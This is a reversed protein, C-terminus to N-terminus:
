AEPEWEPPGKYGYWAMDPASGYVANKVKIWIQNGWDHHWYFIPDNTMDEAFLAWHLLRRNWLREDRDDIAGTLLQREFYDTASVDSYEEFDSGMNLWKGSKRDRLVVDISSGTSHIPFSRADRPDFNRPDRLYGLTQQRLEEESADPRAAHARDWYYAWLGRQCEISRYADLIFLEVGFSSLVANARALKEAFTKRLWGDKRSGNIRKCYPSNQGNDMAHWSSFALGYDRVNVLEETFLPSSTDLPIQYHPMRIKSLDALPIQYQIDYM